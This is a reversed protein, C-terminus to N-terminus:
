NRQVIVLPEHVDKSSTFIVNVALGAAGVETVAIGVLMGLPEVDCNFAVAVLM